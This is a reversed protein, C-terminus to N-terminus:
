VKYYREARKQADEAAQKPSKAGTAVEAVMNVMVFDAFVSTAAYGLSGAYGFSLSTEAVDRFPLRKRDATWVPNDKYGKLPHSLYGVSGELFKDYQPKSMLYAIFAKAASKAKSYKYIMLPFNVHLETPRGAPGIPFFAHDMDEALEKMGQAQAAAYISIGNNTLSCENALFAKNNSPDLWAATGPVFTEALPKVYELAAITQPSNIVVNDKEDVMKGGFAWILWAVWSNGDGSANGLAFGGPTGNKKLNQMLKLFDDMNTPMKEYGAKKIHSIRYNLLNGSITVPVSNWKGARKGYHEAIPYWGGNNKGLYDAVDSVDVLADPYLHNDAHIGWVLDPGNGINAAVAAKARLDEFNLSDVRMKVDMAKSFADVLQNFAQEESIVFRNWRLIRLSAGKEPKWPSTQAFAEAAGLLAPTAIAAGAVMSATKMVDRRTYKSM